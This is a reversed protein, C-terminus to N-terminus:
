PFFLDIKLIENLHDIFLLNGQLVIGYKFTLSLFM